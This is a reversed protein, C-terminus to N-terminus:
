HPASTATHTKLAEKIDNDPLGNKIKIFNFAEDFEPNKISLTVCRSRVTTLLGLANQCVLIFIMFKPPEELIKLLANQSQESMKDCDLLINVKRKAEIPYVFASERISRVTDIKFTAGDPTYTLVDCHGDNEVLQCTRCKGCPAGEDSCVAAAALIKAFTHRGSGPEGEIIFAHPFRGSKVATKVTEKLSNNGVFSDLM